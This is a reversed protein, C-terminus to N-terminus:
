YYYPYLISDMIERLSLKKRVAEKDDKKWKIPKLEMLEARNIIKKIQWAPTRIMLLDIYSLDLFGYV